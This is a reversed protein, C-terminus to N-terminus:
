PTGSPAATPTPTPSASTDGVGNLTNVVKFLDGVESFDVAVINPFRGRLQQCRRVRSLLFDYANVTKADQASPTQSEIWHNVLFLPADPQGRNTACSADDQLQAPSSFTYPTDQVLSWGDHYWDPKPASGIHESLVVVRLDLDILQRLTPWPAGPQHTYVRDILGTRIFADETDDPTVYDGFFIIVVENPNEDLFDNVDTLADDLYVAGLECFGHCLYPEAEANKPAEGISAALRQVAAEGEPGLNAVLEQHEQETERALDTLVGKKTEIGYHSKMLLARVGADLQSRVGHLQEAFYFGPVEAASQSNHTGPFAVQDLTRDCLAVFGNCKQPGEDEAAVDQASISSRNLWLATGGAFLVVVLAGAASLRVLSSRQLARAQERRTRQARPAASALGSLRLLEAGAVYLVLLGAARALLSLTVGPALLLAFGLAVAAAALAFRTWRSALTARGTRRLRELQEGAGETRVTASAAAALAVGFIGVLWLWTNLRATFIDFISGAAAATSEADIQRVLLQRGVGLALFLLLAGVTLSVGVAVLATRRDHAVAVAAVLLVVGLAGLAFMATHANHLTQTADPLLSGQGFKVLGTKVDPPVQDALQPNVARLGSIAVTLGNSLDLAYNHRNSEFVARHLERVAPVFLRNFAPTSLITEIVTEILPRITVLDPKAKVAQDVLVRSIETKVAPAKAAQVATAAFHGSNFITDDAWLYVVGELTLLTGLLILLAASVTRLRRHTGPITSVAVV